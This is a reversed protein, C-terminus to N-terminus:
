WLHYKLGFPKLEKYLENKEEESVAFRDVDRMKICRFYTKMNNLYSLRGLNEPKKGIECGMFSGCGEYVLWMKDKNLIREFVNTIRRLNSEIYIGYKILTRKEKQVDSATPDRIEVGAYIRDPKAKVEYCFEGVWEKPDTKSTKGDYELFIRFTFGSLAKLETLYLTYVFFLLRAGVPTSFRRDFHQKDKSNLIDNWEKCVLFPMHKKITTKPDLLCLSLIESKIDRPIEKLNDDQAEVRQKKTKPEQM